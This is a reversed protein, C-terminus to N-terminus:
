RQLKLGILFLKGTEYTTFALSTNQGALWAPFQRSTTVEFGQNRSRPEM